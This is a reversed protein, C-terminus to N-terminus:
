RSHTSEIEDLQVFACGLLIWIGLCFTLYQLMENKLSSTNTFMGLFFMKPEFIGSYANFPPEVGGLLAFLTIKLSGM